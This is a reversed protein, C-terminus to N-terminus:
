KDGQQELPALIRVPFARQPLELTNKRPLNLVMFDYGM